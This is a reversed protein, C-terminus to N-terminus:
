GKQNPSLGRWKKYTYPLMVVVLILVAIGPVFTWASTRADAGSIILFVGVLALLLLAIHICFMTRWLKLDSQRGVSEWDVM